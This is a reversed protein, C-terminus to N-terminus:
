QPAGFFRACEVIGEDGNAFDWGVIKPDQSCCIIRRADFQLKFVRANPQSVHQQAGAPNQHPHHTAPTAQQTIPQATITTTTNTTTTHPQAPQQQTGNSASAPSSSHNTATVLNTLHHQQLAHINQAAQSLSAQPNTTQSSSSSTSAQVTQSASHIAASVQNQYAQLQANFAPNFVPSTLTQYNTSGPQTPAATHAITTGMSITHQSQTTQAGQQNAQTNATQTQQQTNGANSNQAAGHQLESHPILPGGAARLAEEQRLRHGPVWRGDSAKKWIIITEDYSGSIIRGWRSGGGGPPLKAGHAMIDKPDKSGANRQRSRVSASTTPLAGSRRAAFYKRDIESAEWELEERSGPIDGFASQITRVLRNHGQLCAVEAQTAPDYIRITCDSSGSVIRKGDYQVCAIGKTHGRCTATCVGTHINWIKVLRDGSASVLQDNYIHIANVAAGHSELLMLPTYPALLKKQEMTLHRDIDAPGSFRTLDIIYSPCRGGGDVGKVPYNPDGPRLEHRSWIKITKDKSCTVLFREDFKLNLVSEKHAQSIKKLMKGTSFRWLIVDTDSSGSIIIDEKPSDDFQLCLVSATHGVLPKRVLRQTDLDWIRLTRDRSGSVLYKGLYQITYVCESHAEEPHEHHPLQFSKYTGANWNDELKRKQKFVHHYNLRPHGSATQILQPELTLRSLPGGQLSPDFEPHPSTQTNDQRQPSMMDSQFTEPPPGPEADQMEEDQAGDQLDGDAEVAGNQESSAQFGLQATSSSTSRPSLMSDRPLEIGARARKKNRRQEQHTDARRSRTKRRLSYNQEYQRVEDMDLEWGELTFKQKWLRSDLTGNHWSRSVRSAQLLMSPSLYSFIESTIEIPLVAVPDIHLLPRLREVVAAISSTQLTRLVHYVFEKENTLQWLLHPDSMWHLDIKGSREAESLALIAPPLAPPASMPVAVAEDPVPELRMPSDLDNDSRTEESYGEDLKFASDM